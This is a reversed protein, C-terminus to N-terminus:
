FFSDLLFLSSKSLPTNGIRSTLNVPVQHQVLFQVMPLHGSSCANHLVSWGDKDQHTTNAHAKNVLYEVISMHGAYAAKLLATEGEQDTADVTAGAKEILCTVINLYGRSAAFHLPRLGTGSQPQDPDVQLVAHRNSSSNNHSNLREELVSLNGTAALTTLDSDQTSMSNNNNTNVHRRCYHNSHSSHTPSLPETTNPSQLCEATSM